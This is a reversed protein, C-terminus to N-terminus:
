RLRNLAHNLQVVNVHEQGLFGLIRQQLHTTVLDHVTAPPLKRARAVRDAQQYANAPSIDPDLGSGSATLADAPVNGPPVHDFTAIAARREKVQAVLAPSNPGLNSAGSALPNYSGASPRPQFWKPDPHGTDQGNQVVHFNQGILGSAVPRGNENILSGDAQHPLTLQAIATVALPYALGTVATFVLLIRLAALHQRLTRGLPRAM